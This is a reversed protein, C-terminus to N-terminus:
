FERVVETVDRRLDKLEEKVHLHSANPDRTDARARRLLDRKYQWADRERQHKWGDGAENLRYLKDSPSASGYLKDNFVALEQIKNYSM